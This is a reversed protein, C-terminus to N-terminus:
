VSRYYREVDAHEKKGRLSKCYYCDQNLPEDTTRRIVGEHGHYSLLRYPNRLKTVMAMFETVALSAVMGDISVVSPGTGNLKNESVGYIADCDKRKEPSSFYKSAEKTSILDYCYLCGKNDINVFVRGGYVVDKQPIIDSALDFYPIEFAACLENLILRSGDNDVCGFTYNSQKIVKFANKSKLDCPLANVDIEPNISGAMRKAIEVKKIGPISDDWRAGILRNLNSKELEDPDILVIRGVGLFALQQVVHSGIGGVGVVAINTNRILMQGERGFLGIQRDFRKNM